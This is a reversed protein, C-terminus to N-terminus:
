TLRRASNLALLIQRTMAVDAAARHAGTTIFGFHRAITGLQHNPLRLNQRSLELTDILANTLPPLNVRRYHDIIFPFDFRRINHGVLIAQNTFDAFERLVDVLDRGHERVYETTLGHIATADWPIPRSPIILSHFTETVTGNILREAALEIIEHGQEWSLGTTEIDLVVFQQQYLLPM